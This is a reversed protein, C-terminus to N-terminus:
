DFKKELRESILEKISIACSMIELKKEESLSDILQDFDLLSERTHNMTQLLYKCIYFEMKDNQNIM